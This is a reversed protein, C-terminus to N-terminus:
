REGRCEWDVQEGVEAIIQVWMLSYDQVKGNGHEPRGQLGPKTFEATCAREEMVKFPKSFFVKVAAARAGSTALVEFSGQETAPAARLSTAILCFFILKRM